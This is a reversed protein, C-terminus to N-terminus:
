LYHGRVRLIKSVKSALLGCADREVEGAKEAWWYVNEVNCTCPTTWSGMVRSDPDKNVGTVLLSIYIPWLSLQNKM